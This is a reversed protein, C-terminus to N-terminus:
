GVRVLAAWGIVRPGPGCTMCRAHPWPRVAVRPAFRRGRYHAEEDGGFVVAWDRVRPGPGHTMSRPHRNRLASLAFWRERWYQVEEPGGCLVSTTTPTVSPPSATIVDALARFRRALQWDLKPGVQLSTDEGSTPGPAVTMVRFCPYGKSCYSSATGASSDRTVHHVAGSGVV